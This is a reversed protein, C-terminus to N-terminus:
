MQVRTGGLSANIVASVELLGNIEPNKEGEVSVLEYEYYMHLAHFLAWGLRERSYTFLHTFKYVRCLRMIECGNWRPDKIVESNLLDLHKTVELDWFSPVAQTGIVWHSM